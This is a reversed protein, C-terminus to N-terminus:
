FPLDAGRGTASREAIRRAEHRTEKGKGRRMRRRPLGRQEGRHGAEKLKRFEGSGPYLHAKEWWLESEPNVGAERAIQQLQLETLRSGWPPRILTSHGRRIGRYREAQREGARHEKQIQEVEPDYGPSDRIPHVEGGEEFFEPGRGRRLPV